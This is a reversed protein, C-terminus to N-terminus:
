SPCSSPFPSIAITSTPKPALPSPPSFPSLTPWSSIILAISTAPQQLGGSEARITLSRPRGKGNWETLGASIVKLGPSQGAVPSESARAEFVLGVEHAWEVRENRAVNRVNRRGRARELGLGIRERELAAFGHPVVVQNDRRTQLNTPPLLCAVATLAHQHSPKSCVVVIDFPQGLRQAVWEGALDRGDVREVRAVLRVREDLLQSGALSEERLRGPGDLTCACRLLHVVHRPVAPPLRISPVLNLALKHRAHHTTASPDPVCLNVRPIACGM